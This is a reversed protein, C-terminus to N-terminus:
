LILFIIVLWTDNERIVYPIKIISSVLSFDRKFILEVYRLIQTISYSYIVEARPLEIFYISVTLFKRGSDSARM